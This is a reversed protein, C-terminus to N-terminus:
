HNRRILDALNALGLPDISGEGQTEPDALSRYRMPM